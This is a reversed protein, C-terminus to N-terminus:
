KGLTVWILDSMPKVFAFRELSVEGDFVKSGDENIVVETVLEINTMKSLKAFKEIPMPWMIFFELVTGFEEIFEPSDLSLKRPKPKSVFENINM